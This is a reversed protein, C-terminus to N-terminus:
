KKAMRKQLFKGYWGSTESAIDDLLVKGPFLKSYAAEIGQIQQPTNLSVLRVVCDNDTGAGRMAKEVSVAWHDAEPRVRALLIRKLASEHPLNMESKIAEELSLHKKVSAEKYAGVVALLHANTASMIIDIFVANDTGLLKKEGAKYLKEADEQPSGAHTREQGLCLLAHQVHKNGVKEKVFDAYSKGEQEQFTKLVMRRGEENLFTLADVISKTDVSVHKLAEAILEARLVDPPTVQSFV